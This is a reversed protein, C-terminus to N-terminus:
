SSAPREATRLGAHGTRPGLGHFPEPERLGEVCDAVYEALAPGHKFGHGSGGGLLWWTPEEPHRSVIFHSDSTLDYQCVRTGTIPADALAPFREAAYARARRAMEADPLRELADPDVEAFHRDPAIKMGLGSIEGHGYNPGFPGDYECFGPTGEWSADVGFFFVDRRSIQLEVQAPFLSGLWSGCAWVVVDARPPDDPTPRGPVVRVGAALARTAARAHLVGATPEFLVSELGEGGISPFLRKAEIPDLRETPIGLRALTQESRDTFARAEACQLWAIGVPEFLRLGSEQELARWLELSRMASRTYWEEDSHAFRLLRTDGGSGSRTNGPTHQEVLTVDFGRRQLERATAAGFVGAGVVAATPM